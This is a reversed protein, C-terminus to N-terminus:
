RGAPAAPILAVSAAAAGLYLLAAILAAVHMGGLFERAAPSGALAGFAAIGIARAREREEPFSRTIIAVTGPLRPLTVSVITVDLQVLFLGACMTVLTLTRRRM